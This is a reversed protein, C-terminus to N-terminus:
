DVPKGAKWSSGIVTIYKKDIPDFMITTNQAPRVEYVMYGMAKRVSVIQDHTAKM